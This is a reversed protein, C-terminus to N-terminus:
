LDDNLITEHLMAKLWTPKFHVITNDPPTYSTASPPPVLNGSVWGTPVVNSVLIAAGKLLMEVGVIKVLFPLLPPYATYFSFNRRGAM